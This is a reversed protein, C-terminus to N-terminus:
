AAAPQRFRYGVGWVTQIFYPEAPTPEIKARLRNIHSSVTHEFGDYFDGWLAQLLQARSYVRGPTRSLLWLLDFEKETLSVRRGARRVDRRLADISLQDIVIQDQQPALPLALGARRALSQVRALLEFFDFGSPLCDDAGQELARIRSGVHSDACLVLVPTAPRPRRIIAALEEGDLVNQSLIALRVEDQALAEQVLAASPCHRVQWGQGRLQAGLREALSGKPMGMVVRM